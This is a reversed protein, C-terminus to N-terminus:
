KSGAPLTLKPYMQRFGKRWGGTNPFSSLKAQFVPILADRKFSYIIQPYTYLIYKLYIFYMNFYVIQAKVHQIYFYNNIISIVEIM